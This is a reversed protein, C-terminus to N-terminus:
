DISALKNINEFPDGGLLKGLGGLIGGILGGGGLAALGAGISILAPGIAFLKIPDVEGLTKFLNSLGDFAATIVGAIGTFVKEIVGGFEKIIPTFKELAPAMLNLAYAFPILSAGLAAIAIAGALMLPLMSGLVGGAVGLGVLAVGAKGLDEWSIDAFMQLAYAAPILSAGLAAIAIAGLIMQGALSGITAGAIGLGVLAVGAKGMDEWSVESFMKFAIAAPILAAGLAALALAGLFVKGSALREIGKAFSTLGKEVLPGITGLVAAALMGPLAAVLGIGAVVLAGAGLLVKGKAMAELGDALGELGKKVGKGDIKEILKAGLFGFIMATLGLSVPILALAGLVAKGNAMAELGGALGELAKKVAKGDISQIALAGLVGPLM